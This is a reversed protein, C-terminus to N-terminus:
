YKVFRFRFICGEEFCDGVLMIVVCWDGIFDEVVRKGDVFKIRIM